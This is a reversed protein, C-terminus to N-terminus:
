LENIKKLVWPKNALNENEMVRQRIKLIFKQSISKNYRKKAMQRLIQIFDLYYYKQSFQKNRRLFREFTQSQSIFLIYQSEDVALEEYIARLLLSKARTKNIFKPFSHSIILEITKSYETKSFYILALSLVKIQERIKLDLYNSYKAIFIELWNYEKLQIGIAIINIFSVESLRKNAILINRELGFKYLELNEKLFVLNGQSSKPTAYNFLCLMIFLKDNLGLNSWCKNFLEKAKFFHTENESQALQVLHYYIRLLPSFEEIDKSVHFIIEDLFHIKHREDYIRERSKMEIGMQLKGLFYFSDLNRMAKLLGEKNPTLKQTAYDFYLKHNKQFLSLYYALDQIPVIDLEKDLQQFTKQLSGTLNRKGLAEARLKKREIKNDIFELQVLFDEVLLSLESMLNSVKKAQFIRDNPFLHRFVHEKSLMRSDLTPYYKDIYEFLEILQGNTNFFPSHVYKKFQRFEKKSLIQFMKILRSAHM